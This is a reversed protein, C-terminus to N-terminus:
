IIWWRPTIEVRSINGTFNVGCSGSPIVIMDDSFSVNANCNIAGKFADMIECDIDVYQSIASITITESGIGVTGAGSGYVRILPKAAYQTENYMNGAANFIIVQEGKKLFRQPKCNFSIEFKGHRNMYGSSEVDLGSSYQGLRFVEPAYTDELRQYGPLSSIYNAFAEIKDPMDEVIYSPYSVPINEFADEDIILTGNRGPVKYENYKRKPRNYTSEGSIRIGFDQSNKGAFTFYHMM